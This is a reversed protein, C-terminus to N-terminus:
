RPPVLAAFGITEVPKESREDERWMGATGCIMGFAHVDAARRELIARTKLVQLSTEQEEVSM